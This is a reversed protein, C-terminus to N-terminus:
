AEEQGNHRACAFKLVDQLRVVTREDRGGKRGGERGGEREGQWGCLAEDENCHLTFYDVSDSGPGSRESLQRKQHLRRINTKLDSKPM